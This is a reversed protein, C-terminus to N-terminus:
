GLVRQVGKIQVDILKPSPYSVELPLGRYLMKDRHRLSSLRLGISGAHM